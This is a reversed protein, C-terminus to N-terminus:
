IAYKDMLAKARKEVEKRGAMAEAYGEATKSAGGLLANSPSFYLFADLIRKQSDLKLAIFRLLVVITERVSYREYREIKDMIGNMAKWQLEFQKPCGDLWHVNMPDSDHMEVTKGFALKRKKDYETRTAKSAPMVSCAPVLYEYYFDPDLGEEMAPDVVDHNIEDLFVKADMADDM